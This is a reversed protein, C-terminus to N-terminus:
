TCLVKTNVFSLVVGGNYFYCVFFMKKFDGM